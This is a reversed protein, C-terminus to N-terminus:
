DMNKLLAQPVGTQYSERPQMSDGGAKYLLHIPDSQPHAVRTEGLNWATSGTLDTQLTLARETTALSCFAYSPKPCTTFPYALKWM